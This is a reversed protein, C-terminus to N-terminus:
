YFLYLCTRLAGSSYAFHFRQSLLLAGSFNWLKKRKIKARCIDVSRLLCCDEVISYIFSIALKNEDSPM